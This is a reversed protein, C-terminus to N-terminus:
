ATQIAYATSSSPQRRLGSQALIREAALRASAFSADALMGTPGIWDGALYINGAGSLEPGPRGVLGGSQATVARSAVTLNPLFRREVVLERWGPQCRDFLSELEREVTAPDPAPRELYKMAHVVAAGPPALRASASHVSFYVPRDIGLAFLRDPNPLASLGVDLSAALVPPGDGISSATAADPLLESVTEPDVALVLNRCATQGGDILRVVVMERDRGIASVRRNTQVRGGRSQVFSQLGDVLSQWGGDLYWVGGLGTKFQEIAAGASLSELDATYTTLRFLATLFQRAPEDRIQNALWDAFGVSQLERTSTRALSALFRTVAWKGSLPFLRSRWLGAASLPLSHFQEGYMAWGRPPPSGHIPIQLDALTRRGAGQLYLAHPGVNFQFGDHSRTRGRGGCTRAKELVTVQQGARVLYAAATLGAAGAGVIVTDITRQGREM